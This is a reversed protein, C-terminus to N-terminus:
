YMSRKYKVRTGARAKVYDFLHQEEMDYKNQTM